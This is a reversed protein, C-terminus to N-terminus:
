GATVAEETRRGDETRKVSQVLPTPSVPRPLVLSVATRNRVPSTCIRRRVRHRVVHRQVHREIPYVSQVLPTKASLLSFAMSLRFSSVVNWRERGGREGGGGRERICEPRPTHTTRGFREVGGGRHTVSQVPPTHANPWSTRFQVASRTDGPPSVTQIHPTRSTRGGSEVGCATGSEVCTTQTM